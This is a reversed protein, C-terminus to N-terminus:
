SIMGGLDPCCQRGCLLSLETGVCVMRIKLYGLNSVVLRSALLFLLFILVENSIKSVNSNWDPLDLAFLKWSSWGRLAFFFQYRIKVVPAGAKLILFRVRPFGFGVVGLGKRPVKGSLQMLVRLKKLHLHPSEGCFGEANAEQELLHTVAQQGIGAHKCKTKFSMCICNLACIFDRTMRLHFHSETIVQSFNGKVVRESPAIASRMSFPM